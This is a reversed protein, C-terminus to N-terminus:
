DATKSVKVKWEEPGSVLYEWKFPESSEAEIQYYLPKPDHDNFFIFAEGRSIEDFADFVMEHRRAPPFPRVDFEKIVKIEAGDEETNIIKKSHIVYEGPVEKKYSWTHKGAFKESFIQHIEVPEKRSIIEMTDGEPMMGYRHFVVHKWDKPDVKRLDMLTSIDTFERGQSSETRTVKVKWDRGGKQLYEWGVVDGHVSRFEYYLPLPDHDNIFVFSENVPLEKFMQLLTRHREIPILVRVDLERTIKSENSM